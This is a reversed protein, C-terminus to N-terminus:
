ASVKGPEGSQGSSGESFSIVKDKILRDNKWVRIRVRVSNPGYDFPEALIRERTHRNYYEVPESLRAAEMGARRTIRRIAEDEADRRAGEDTMARRSGEPSLRENEPKRREKPLAAQKNGSESQRVTAKEKTPAPVTARAAAARKQEQIMAEAARRIQETARRQEELRQKEEKLSKELEEIEQRKQGQRAQEEAAAVDIKERAKEVELLAAAHRQDVITTGIGAVGATIMGFGLILSLVRKVM